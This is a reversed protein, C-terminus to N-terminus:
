DTFSIRSVSVGREKFDKDLFIIAWHDEHPYILPYPWFEAADAFNHQFKDSIKLSITRKCLSCYFRAYKETKNEGM